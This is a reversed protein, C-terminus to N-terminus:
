KVTRGKGTGSGTVIMDFFAQMSRTVWKNKHYILQRYVMLPSDPGMLEPVNIGVLKGKKIADSVVFHPLVSIGGNNMLYNVIFETNGIELFPKIAKGMSALHQEIIYRYSADRETLIFEYSLLEDISVVKREALPHNKSATIVVHEPRELIKNFNNSYVKKDLFYCFDILNKNMLEFLVEPSDLTVKINVDPYKEHYKTILGPLLMAAMSETTGIKVEGSVDSQSTIYEKAENIDRLITQAKPLFHKGAETLITKKGIRDFLPTKFEQELHKMQITVAAQTYGLSVAAKSFSEEEAVQLFTILERIEM